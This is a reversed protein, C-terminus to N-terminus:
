FYIVCYQGKKKKKTDRHLLIDDVNCLIGSDFIFLIKKKDDHPTMAKQSM